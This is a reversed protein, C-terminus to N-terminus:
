AQDKDVGDDGGTQEEAVPQRPPAPALYGVVTCLLGYAVFSGIGLLDGLHQRDVLVLKALVLGMLLAGGLWLGRQGRRSGIVWGLVGLVSWVITLSTQSLTAGILGADWAVDGWHHVSHLTSGTIM